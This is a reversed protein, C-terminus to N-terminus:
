ISAAEKGDMACSRVVILKIMRPNVLWGARWYTSVLQAEWGGPVIWSRIEMSIEACYIACYMELAVGTGIMGVYAGFLM